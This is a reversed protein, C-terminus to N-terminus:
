EWSSRKIWGTTPNNNSDLFRIQYMPGKEAVIVATTKAVLTNMQGGGMTADGEGTTTPWYEIGQKLEKVQLVKQTDAMEKASATELEKKLNRIKADSLEQLAIISDALTNSNEISKEISKAHSKSFEMLDDLRRGTEVALETQHKALAAIRKENEVLRMEYLSELKELKSEIRDMTDSLESLDAESHDDPQPRPNPDSRQFSGTLTEVLRLWDFISMGGLNIFSQPQVDYTLPGAAPFQYYPTSPLFYTDTVPASHYQVSSYTAPSLYRVPSSYTTGSYVPYGYTPYSYGPYSSGQSECSQDCYAFLSAANVLGLALCLTVVGSLHRIM